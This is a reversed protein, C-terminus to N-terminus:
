VVVPVLALCEARWGSRFDGDQYSVNERERERFPKSNKGVSRCRSSKRWRGISRQPHPHPHPHQGCQCGHEERRKSSVFNTRYIEASRDFPNSLPQRPHNHCSPRLPSSLTYARSPKQVQASLYLVSASSYQNWILLSQRPATPAHSYLKVIVM